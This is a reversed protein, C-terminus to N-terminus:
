PKAIFELPKLNKSNELGCQWNKIANIYCNHIGQEESITVGSQQFVKRTWTGFVPYVATGRHGTGLDSGVVWGRPTGVRSTHIDFNVISGDGKDEWYCQILKNVLTLSPAGDRAATQTPCKIPDRQIPAVHAVPAKSGDNLARISNPVVGWDPIGSGVFKDMAVRYANDLLGKTVTGPYWSAGSLVEVRDGVKFEGNDAAPQNQNAMKPVKANQPIDRKAANREYEPANIDGVRKDDKDLLYIRGLNGHDCVSYGEGRPDSPDNDIVLLYCGKSTGTGIQKVKAKVYGDPSGFGSMQADVRDGVQLKPANQADVAIFLTTIFFIAFM